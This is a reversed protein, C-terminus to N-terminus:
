QIEGDKSQTIVVYRPQILILYIVAILLGHTIMTTVMNRMNGFVQADKIGEPGKMLDFSPGIQSFIYIDQGAILIGIVVAAVININRRFVRKFEVKSM